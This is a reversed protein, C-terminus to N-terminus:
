KQRVLSTEARGSRACAEFEFRLRAAAEGRYKANLKKLVNHVHNKTTHLSICLQEAIEQNSLNGVNSIGPLRMPRVVVGSPEPLNGYM